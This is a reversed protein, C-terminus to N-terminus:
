AALKKKDLPTLKFFQGGIGNPFRRWKPRLEAILDNQRNWDAQTAEASLRFEAGVEYQFIFSTTDGVKMKIAAHPPQGIVIYGQRQYVQRLVQKVEEVDIM